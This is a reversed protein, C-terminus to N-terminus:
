VRVDLYASRRLDRLYRRILINLQRQALARRISAVRKLDTGVDRECVMMVTVSEKTEIPASVQGVDLREAQGRLHAALSSSQVKTLRLVDQAGADRSAKEMNGCDGTATDSIKKAIDRQRKRDADKANPPFKLVARVLSVTPRQSPGLKIVRSERLALIYYGSTTRIPGAVHGPKMQKLRGELESPLSDHDIWGLDGGVRATPSQSFQTAIRAFSVGKKIQDFLRQATARVEREQDPTDVALFIESVRYRAEGQNARVRSIYEQVEEDRVRVRPRIQRIIVKRWAIAAQIQELVTRTDIGRSRFYPLLRGKPINNNKELRGIADDTEKRAVKIGLRRAEQMQLREEILGRLLQKSLRKRTEENDRIRSTKLVFDVRARLDRV